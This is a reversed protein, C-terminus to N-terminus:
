YEMAHYCLYHHDIDINTNHRNLSKTPRLFADSIDDDIKDNEIVLIAIILASFLLLFPFAILFLLNDQTTETDM